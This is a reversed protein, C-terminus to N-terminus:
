LENRIKRTEQVTAGKGSKSMRVWQIKQEYVPNRMAIQLVVNDTKMQAMKKNPKVMFGTKIFNFKCLKLELLISEKEWRAFRTSTKMELAQTYFRNWEVLRKLEIKTYNRCFFCFGYDKATATQLKVHCKRCYTFFKNLMRIMNGMFLFIMM